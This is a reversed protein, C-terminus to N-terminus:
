NLGRYPKRKKTQFDASVLTTKLRLIHIEELEWENFQALLWIKEQITETTVNKVKRQMRSSFYHERDSEKGLRVNVMENFIFIHDSAYDISASAGM